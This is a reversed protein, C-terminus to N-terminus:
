PLGVIKHLQLCLIYGHKMCSAVVTRQNAANKLPDGDDCPQLYVQGYFGRLESNNYRFPPAAMGLASTPLGDQPDVADASLVYKFHSILTSPLWGEAIQPTKPSCIITIRGFFERYFEVGPFITGNTEIQPHYGAALLNRLLPTLNQRFPEGGTIVVLDAECERRAAALMVMLQVVDLTMRESTYDTDCLPCQLNCGALRIFIAPRGAFPGEGQITPFVEVVDLMEGSLDRVSKEIPQLNM